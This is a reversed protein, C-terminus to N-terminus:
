APDVALYADMERAFRRAGWPDSLLAALPGLLLLGFGTIGLEGLAGDGLVVSLLADVVAWVLLAGLLGALSRAIPGVAVAAHENNTM